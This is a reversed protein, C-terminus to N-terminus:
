ISPTFYEFITVHLATAICRCRSTHINWPRKQAVARYGCEPSVFLLVAGMTLCCIRLLAVTSICCRFLQKRRPGHRSNILPVLNSNSLIYVTREFLAVACTPVFTLTRTNLTPSSALLWNGDPLDQSRGVRDLKETTKRPGLVFASNTGLIGRKVAHKVHLGGV